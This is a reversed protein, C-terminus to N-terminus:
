CFNFSFNIQNASTDVIELFFNRSYLFFVDMKNVFKSFSSSYTNWNIKTSRATLM